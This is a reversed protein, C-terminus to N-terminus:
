VTNKHPMARHQVIYRRPTTHYIFSSNFPNPLVIYHGLHSDRIQRSPSLLFPHGTAHALNSGLVEWFRTLAVALGVREAVIIYQCNLSSIM